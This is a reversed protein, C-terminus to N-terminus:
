KKVKLSEKWVPVFDYTPYFETTFAGWAGQEIALNLTRLQSAPIKVTVVQGIGMMVYWSIVRASKPPFKERFKNVAQIKNLSDLNKDQQHKLFISILISDNPTTPPKQASATFAFLCFLSCTIFVNM